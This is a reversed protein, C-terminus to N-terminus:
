HRLFPVRRRRERRRPCAVGSTPLAEKVATNHREFSHLGGTTLYLIFFLMYKNIIIALGFIDKLPYKDIDNM